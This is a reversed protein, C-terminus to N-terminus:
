WLDCIHDEDYKLDNNSHLPYSTEDRDTRIGVKTYSNGFDISLAATM